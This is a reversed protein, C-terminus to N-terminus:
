AGGGGGGLHYHDCLFKPIALHHGGRGGGGLLRDSSAFAVYLAVLVFDSGSIDTVYVNSLLLLRETQQSGNQGRQSQQTKMGLLTLITKTMFWLDLPIVYNMKMRVLTVTPVPSAQNNPM